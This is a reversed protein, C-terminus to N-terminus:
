HSRSGESREDPARPSFVEDALASIGASVSVVNGFRESDAAYLM